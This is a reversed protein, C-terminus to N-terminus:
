RVLSLATRVTVTEISIPARIERLSLGTVRRCRRDLSRASSLGLLRAAHVPAITSDALSDYSRILALAQVFTSASGIGCANFCLTVAQRTMACYAAMQSVSELRECRENMEEVARWLRHPLEIICPELLSLLMRGNQVSPSHQLVISLSRPDDNYGFTVVRARVERVFAILSAAYEPTLRIYAVTPVHCRLLSQAVEVHDDPLTPDVVAVDPWGRAVADLFDRSRDRLALTGFSAVAARARDSFPPALMALTRM